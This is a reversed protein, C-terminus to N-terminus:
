QSEQFCRAFLTDAFLSAIFPEMFPDPAQKLEMLSRWLQPDESREGLKELASEQCFFPPLYHEVAKREIRFLSKPGYDREFIRKVLPFLLRKVVAYVPAFQVLLLLSGPLAMPTEQDVANWSEGACLVRLVEMSEFALDITPATAQAAATEERPNSGAAGGSREMRSLLRQAMEELVPRREVRLVHKRVLPSFLFYLFSIWFPVGEPGERGQLAAEAVQAVHFQSWPSVLPPEQRIFQFLIPVLPAKRQPVEQPFRTGYFLAPLLHGPSEQDSVSPPLGQNHTRLLTFLMGWAAGSDTSMQEALREAAHGAFTKVAGLADWLAYPQSFAQSLRPLSGMGPPPTLGHVLLYLPLLAALDVPLPTVHDAHLFVSCTENVEGWALALVWIWLSSTDQERGQQLRRLFVDFPISLTKNLLIRDCWTWVLSTQPWWQGGLEKAARDEKAIWPREEKARAPDEWAASDELPGMTRLYQLAAWSVRQWDEGLDESTSVSVVHQMWFPMAVAAYALPHETGMVLDRVTLPIQFRSQDRMKHLATEDLPDGTALSYLLFQTEAPLPAAFEDEEEDSSSLQDWHILDGEEFDEDEPELYSPLALVEKEEEEEMQRRRLERERFREETEQRLQVLERERETRGEEDEDEEEEAESEEEEDEESEEEDEAFAAPVVGNALNVQGLIELTLPSLEWAPYRFLLDIAGKPLPLYNIALSSQLLFPFLVTLDQRVRALEADM